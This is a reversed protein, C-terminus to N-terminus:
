QVHNGKVEPGFVPVKPAVSLPVKLPHPFTKFSQLPRALLFRNAPVTRAWLLKNVPGTEALLLNNAPVTVALLEKWYNVWGLLWYNTVSVIYCLLKNKSFEYKIHNLAM